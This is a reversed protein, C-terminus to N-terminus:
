ASSSQPYEQREEATEKPAYWRSLSGDFRWLCGTKELTQAHIVRRMGRVSEAPELQYRTATSAGSTMDTRVWGPDVGMVIIGQTRLEGALIPIARHLAAKTCAYAFGGTREPPPPPRLVGTRSTLAAV